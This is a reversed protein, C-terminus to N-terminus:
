ATAPGEPEEPVRPASAVLPLTFRFVAGGGPRGAASISGGHAEIAAKCIPLGLGAGRAGPARDGPRPRCVFLAAPDLAGLGPGRDSVAVEIEDGRRQAEVEVAAGPAHVIANEILNTLVQALLVADVHVLPLGTALRATIARSPNRQRLRAVVSGVIEELSEWDRRLALPGASLRALQLVNEAVDTMHAAESEITRLLAACREADLQGAQERLTSASGVIVALPTRLDHSISALLASRVSEMHAEAAAASAREGLRVRQLATAILRALAELQLQDDPDWPRSFGRLDVALVGICTSDAALPVACAELTPWNRTGPGLADTHEVVWRLAEEDAEISGVGPATARIAAQLDAGVVRIESACGLSRSVIEAARNAIDEERQAAALAQGLEHLAAMRMEGLRAAAAERKLKTVLASVVLSVGLLAALSILYEPGEVLFTYRPPIFLFNLLVSGAVATVVADGGRLYVATLVVPLLYILAQSALSVQGDVAWALATAIALLAICAALRGARSSLLSALSAPRSPSALETRM